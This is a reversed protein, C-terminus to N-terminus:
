RKRNKRESNGWIKKKKSCKLHSKRKTKCPPEGGMGGRTGVKKALVGGRNVKM